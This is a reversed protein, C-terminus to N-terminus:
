RSAPLLFGGLAATDLFVIGSVEVVPLPRLRSGACPGAVCEGTDPRYLAGHESCVLHLRDPASVQGPRDRDLRVALHRCMNRWARLGDQTAVLIGSEEFPGDRYSFVLGGLPIEERAAIRHLAPEEM